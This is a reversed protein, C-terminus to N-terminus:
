GASCLVSDQTRPHHPARLDAQRGPQVRCLVAVVLLPLCVQLAAPWALAALLALLLACHAGACRGRM